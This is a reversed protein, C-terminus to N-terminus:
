LIFRGFFFPNDICQFKHSPLFFWFFNRLRSVVNTKLECLTKRSSFYLTYLSQCYVLIYTYFLISKSLLFFELFQMQHPVFPVSRILLFRFTQHSFITKSPIENFVLRIEDQKVDKIALLFIMLVVFFLGFICLKVKQVSTKWNHKVSNRRM